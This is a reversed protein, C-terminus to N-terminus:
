KVPELVQLAVNQVMDKVRDRYELMHVAILHRELAELDQWKEVVTVVDHRVPGQADINTEVDVVPGYEICGEEALVLPVIRLMEALFDARRGSALEITAIVHIM